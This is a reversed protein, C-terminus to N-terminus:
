FMKIQAAWNMKNYTNGNTVDTRLMHYVTKLITHDSSVIKIWNKIMILMWRIYMPYRGVEGYLGEINRSKKVCLIKELLSVIYQNLIKVM